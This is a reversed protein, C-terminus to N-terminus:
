AGRARGAALRLLAVRGRLRAVEVAIMHGEGKRAQGAIRQLLDARGDLWDATQELEALLDPAAAILRANAEGQRDRNFYIGGREVTALVREQGTRGGDEGASEIVSGGWGTNVARWPGPTHGAAPGPESKRKAM